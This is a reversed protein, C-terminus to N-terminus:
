CLCNGSGFAQYFRLFRLQKLNDAKVSGTQQWAPPIAQTQQCLKNQTEYM